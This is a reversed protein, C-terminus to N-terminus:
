SSILSDCIHNIEKQLMKTQMETNWSYLGIAKRKRDGRLSLKISEEGSRREHQNMEYFYFIIIIICKICWYIREERHCM